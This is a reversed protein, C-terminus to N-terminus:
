QPSVPISPTIVRFSKGGDSTAILDNQQVVEMCPLGPGDANPNRERACKDAHYVLWGNSNDVFDAAAISGRPPLGSPYSSAITQNAEHVQMGHRSDSFVRVGNTGVHSVLGRKPYPGAQEYAETPEWSTGGDHTVYTSNVYRGRIGSDDAFTVAVAASNPNQFRPTSYIPRCQSCNAPLPVSKQQWTKGGDHTVWLEHAAAGGTTSGDQQTHFSFGNASPPDPLQTWNTGGDITSFLRGKSFASGTQIKWQFWGHVSDVFYLSAPNAFTNKLGPYLTVDFAISVWSRGGDNTRALQVPSQSTGALTSDLLVAWAHSSDLFFVGGIAQTVSMPPTIDAWVVGDDYTWLLHGRLLAWGVGPAIQNMGTIGESRIAPVSNQFAGQAAFSLMPLGILSFGLLLFCVLRRKTHKM